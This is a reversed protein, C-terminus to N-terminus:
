LRPWARQARHHLHLLEPVTELRELDDVVPVGDRRLLDAMEGLIPSYVAPAHGRRALGRALDVVFWETGTPQSLAFNTVLVRM